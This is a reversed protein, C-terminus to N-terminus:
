DKESAVYDEIKGLGIRLTEDNFEVPEVKPAKPSLLYGAIVGAGLLGPVGVAAMAALAVPLLPNSAPPQNMIIPAPHTVDGLITTNVDDAQSGQDADAIEKSGWLKERAWRSEAERDAAKTAAHKQLSQIGLLGTLTELKWRNLAAKEAKQRITPPAQQVTAPNAEPIQSM